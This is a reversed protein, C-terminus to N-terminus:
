DWLDNCNDGDPAAHLNKNLASIRAMEDPSLEFDFIDLNERMHELSAAKPVPLIGSQVEWRLIAQATTKGYKEAIATAAPDMRLGTNPNTVGGHEFAIGGLPFWAQARIGREKLYARLPEITIYPNCELQDVAPMIECMDFIDDLHRQHFNSVGINRVLGEKHLHELAKWAITYMNQSPVPYHILYMDLYDVQLNKITKDFERLADEYRHHGNKLKSSIFLEERGIGNNKLAAGLEKENGYLAASDFLRYGATIANDIIEQINGGLELMMTGMGVQPIENGNNL